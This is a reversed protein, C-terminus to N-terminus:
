FKCQWDSQNRLRHMVACFEQYKRHPARAQEQDLFDLPLALSLQESRGERWGADVKQRRM